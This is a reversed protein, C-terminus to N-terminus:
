PFTPLLARTPKLIMTQLHNASVYSFNASMYYHSTVNQFLFLACCRCEFVHPHTSLNAWSMYYPWVLTRWTAIICTNVEPDDNEFSGRWWFWRNQSITSVVALVMHESATRAMTSITPDWYMDSEIFISKLSTNVKNIITPNRLLSSIQNCVM